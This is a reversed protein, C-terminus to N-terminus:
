ISANPFFRVKETKMKPWPCEHVGHDIYPICRSEGCRYAPFHPEDYEASKRGAAMEAVQGTGAAM